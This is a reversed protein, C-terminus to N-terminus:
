VPYAKEFEKKIGLKSADYTYIYSIDRHENMRCVNHFNPYGIYVTSNSKAFMKAMDKTPFMNMELMKRATSSCNPGFFSNYAVGAQYERLTIETTIVTIDDGFYDDPYESTHERQVEYLTQKFTTTLPPYDPNEDTHEVIPYRYYFDFPETGSNTLHSVRFFSEGIVKNM